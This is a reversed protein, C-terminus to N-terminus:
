YEATFSAVNESTVFPTGPLSDDETLVVVGPSDVDNIADVALRIATATESAPLMMVTSTIEGSAVADLAWQDGGFDFISASSGAAKVAEVVGQTVGSYNSIFLDIDPNAQLMTQATAFASPTTYDTTQNAVIEFDAPLKELALNLNTTNSILPPGSLVAVTGGEPHIEAIEAIWEEYIELNQGTVHAFVDPELQAEGRESDRGCLTGQFTVVPIGQDLINERVFDCLLNGDLPALVYADYGGQAVATEIQNLQQQPDFNSNFLTVTANVDEATVTASTNGATLYSNGESYFFAISTGQDKAADPPNDTDSACGGLLLASALGLAALLKPNFTKRM